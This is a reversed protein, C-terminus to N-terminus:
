LTVREGGEKLNGGRGNEATLPLVINRAGCRDCKIDARDMHIVAYHKGNRIELNGNQTWAALIKGCHTCRIYRPM